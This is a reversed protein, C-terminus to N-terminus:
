QALNTADFLGLFKPFGKPTRHNITIISDHVDAIAHIILFELRPGPLEFTIGLANLSFARFGLVLMKLHSTALFSYFSSLCVYPFSYPTLSLSNSDSGIFQVFTFLAIFEQLFLLTTSFICASQKWHQQKAIGLICYKIGLLIIYSGNLHKYCPLPFIKSVELKNFYLDLLHLM